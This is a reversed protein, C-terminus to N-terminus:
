SQICATEQARAPPSIWSCNWVASPVHGLIITRVTVIHTQAKVCQDGQANVPIWRRVWLAGLVNVPIPLFVQNISTAKM